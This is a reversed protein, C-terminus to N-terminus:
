EAGTNLQMGAPLQGSKEINTGTPAAVNIDVRGNTTTTNNNNITRSEPSAFGNPTNGPSSTSLQPSDGFLTSAGLTAVAVIKDKLIILWNILRITMQILFILPSAITILAGGFSRVSESLGFFQGIAAFLGSTRMTEGLEDWMSILRILGAILLGVGVIIAGFGTATLAISFVNMAISSALLAVKLGIFAGILIEVFPSLASIVNFIIKLIFGVAKLANIIPKPNINRIADVLVDIGKKGKGAFAEIIKFGFETLASGLAKLKNGMSQEIIDAMAKASGGSAILDDRYQKLKDSGNALLINMGTVARTGFVTALAASKTATGMGNTSNEFDAIIDIVDRFDGKSDKITVGLNNLVRSAKPTANALRLMMNRLQTGSESGKVGSNAMTGALASFSEISQGAATFTPAGKKVSEFLDLLNTNSTATTKALVDNVRTLNKQLQVSDKTTLNFAGLSDTAIDTATGLDVNAVTALSVVGPLSAMAQEANFGALALFDLGQAAQVANFKTEAGVKRASKRLQEMTKQGEKTTINLDGFKSTAAFIADDFQVFQRAVLAAGIGLAMLGRKAARGGIKNLRKNLREASFSALKFQRRMKASFGRVSNSAKKMTGTVRDIMSITGSISFRSSKAM